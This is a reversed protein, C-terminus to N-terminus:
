SSSELGIAPVPQEDPAISFRPPFSVEPREVSKFRLGNLYKRDALGAREREEDADLCANGRPDEGAEKPRTSSGRSWTCIAMGEDPRINGVRSQFAVCLQV